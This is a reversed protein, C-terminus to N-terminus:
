DCRPLSNHFSAGLINMQRQVSNVTSQVVPHGAVKQGATSAKDAAARTRTEAAAHVDHASTSASMVPHLFVSPCPFPFALPRSPILALRSRTIPLNFDASTARTGSLGTALSVQTSHTSQSFPRSSFRNRPHYIPTAPLPLLEDAGKQSQNGPPPPSTPRRPPGPGKARLLGRRKIM